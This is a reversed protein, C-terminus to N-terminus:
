CYRILELAMREKPRYNDPIWIVLRSGVDEPDIEILAVVRGSVNLRIERHEAAADEKSNARLVGFREAMAQMVCNAADFPKSNSSYVFPASARDDAPGPATGHMAECGVLALLMAFWSCRLM